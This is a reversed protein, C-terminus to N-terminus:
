VLVPQPRPVEGLPTTSDIEMMPKILGDRLDYVWGHLYLTQGAAFADQVISTRALRM